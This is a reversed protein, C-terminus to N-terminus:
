LWGTVRFPELIWATCYVGWQPIKGSFSFGTYFALGLSATHSGLAFM